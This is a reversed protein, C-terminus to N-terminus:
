LKMLSLYTYKISNQDYFINHLKRNADYTTAAAHYDDDDDNKDNGNDDIDNDQLQSWKGLIKIM